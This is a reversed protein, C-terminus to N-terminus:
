VVLVRDPRRPQYTDILRVESQQINWLDGRGELVGAEVLAIVRAALLWDGAQYYPEMPPGHFAAMTEGIIRAPKQWWAKAFSLLQQDFFTIPASRLGKADVVRLPANEARLQRWHGHYRERAAADLPQARDWVGNDVIEEPYLLFLSFARHRTGAVPMDTFDIVECPLNGLRWLWELFGCYETASRRSIWAVRRVDEVLAAKWFAEEEAFVWEWGTYRLEEEMWHLRTQPDPPNIPGLALNDFHCTVHDERGADRLAQRLCGAASPSFVIHLISTTVAPQEAFAATARM